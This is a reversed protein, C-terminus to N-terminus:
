RGPRHKANHDVRGVDDPLPHGAGADARPVERVLEGLVEVDGEDRTQFPLRGGADGKVEDGAAGVLGLTGEM